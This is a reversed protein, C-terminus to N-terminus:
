IIISTWPTQKLILDEPCGTDQMISYALQFADIGKHKWAAAAPIHLDNAECLIQAKPLLPIKVPKHYVKDNRLREIVNYQAPTGNSSPTMM